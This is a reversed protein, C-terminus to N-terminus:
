TIDDQGAGSCPTNNDIYSCYDDAGDSCARYDKGCSDFAYNYCAANDIWTCIDKGGNYCVASKESAIRTNLRESNILKIIKKEM